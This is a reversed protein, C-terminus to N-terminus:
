SVTLIVWMIFGICLLMSALPWGFPIFMIVIGALMLYKGWRRNPNECVDILQSSVDEECVLCFWIQGQKAKKM